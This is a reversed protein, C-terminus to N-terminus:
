KARKRGRRPPGRLRRRRARRSESTFGVAFCAGLSVAGGVCAAVVHLTGGHYGSLWLLLAGAFLAIGVALAALSANHARNGYPRFARGMRLYPPMLTAVRLAVLAGFFGGVLLWVFIRDATELSM